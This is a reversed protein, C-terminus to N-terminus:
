SGDGNPVVGKLRDLILSAEAKTLEKRSAIVRGIVESCYAIAAARDTYGAKALAIALQTLTGRSARDEVVNRTPHLADYEATM